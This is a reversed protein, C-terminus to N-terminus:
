INSIGQSLLIAAAEKAAKETGASQKGQAARALQTKAIDARNGRREPSMRFWRDAMRVVLEDGVEYSRTGITLTRM